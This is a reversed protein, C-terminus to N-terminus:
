AMKANICDRGQKLWRVRMSHHQDQVAIRVVEQIRVVLVWSVAKENAIHAAPQSSPQPAAADPFRQLPQM